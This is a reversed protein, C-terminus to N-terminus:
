PWVTLLHCLKLEIMGPRDLEFTLLYGTGYWLWYKEMDIVSVDIYKGLYM